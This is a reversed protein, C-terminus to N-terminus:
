AAEEVNFRPGFLEKWVEVDGEASAFHAAEWAAQAAAVIEAREAETIRSAVNNLSCVPDLIVVPDTFQKFPATNESFQIGEKLGSQPVAVRIFHATHAM